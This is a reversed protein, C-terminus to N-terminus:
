RGALFDGVLKQMIRVRFLFTGKRRNPEPIYARIPPSLATTMM